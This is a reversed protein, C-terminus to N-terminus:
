EHTQRPYNEIGNWTKEAPLTFPEKNIFIKKKFSNMLVVLIPLIYIVGLVTFVCTGVMSMRSKRKM